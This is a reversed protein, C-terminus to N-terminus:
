KKEGEHAEGHAHDHDHSHEEIKQSYQKGNIEVNLTATLGKIAEMVGLLDKDITEFQATKMEDGEPNVALLEYTKMEEDGIKVDITIKEAEIPVENKGAADLIYFTVKGDEDHTWEAHYEEDGIVMLHGDHPGHHAHEHGEEAHDHGHGDGDGTTTGSGSSSGPPNSPCGTFGIALAAVLPLVLWSNRMMMIQRRAPISGTLGLSIGPQILFIVPTTRSSSRWVIAM